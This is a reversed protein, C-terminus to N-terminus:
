ICIIVNNGLLHDVEHPDINELQSKTKVFKGKKHLKKWKKVMDKNDERACDFDDLDTLSYDIKKSRLKRAPTFSGRGGGLVVSIKQGRPSGVLQAAIDHM